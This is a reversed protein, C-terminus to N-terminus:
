DFHRLIFTGIAIKAEAVNCKETIQARKAVGVSLHKKPRVSSRVSLRVSVVDLLSTHDGTFLISTLSTKRKRLHRKEWRLKRIRESSIM